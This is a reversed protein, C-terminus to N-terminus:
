RTVCSSNFLRGIYILKLKSQQALTKDNIGIITVALITIKRSVSYGKMNFPQDEEVPIYISDSFRVNYQNLMGWRYM